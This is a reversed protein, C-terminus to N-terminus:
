YDLTYVPVIATVDDDIKEPKGGDYLYLEGSYYKTSYEYLYVIEGEPTVYYNYVDDSIKTAKDKKFTKLTGNQSEESWDAMYVLSEDEANYSIRYMYVDYDVKQKDIYLEGENDKVDKFYLFRGDENFYSYSAYVDNDYLEPKKAKGGSIAAKYLDGHGTEEDVDDVFYVLTGDDNIDFGSASNHEIVSVSDKVAIQKETSSYLAASIMDEVQSSDEIESIKIKKLEAQNYVSYLIVPSESASQYSVSGDNGAMAGTLAKSDKGNYYYLTHTTISINNESLTQRLADRSFKNQYEERAAQYEQYATEYAARAAQYEENSDYDWSYPYEPAVPEQMAEDSAKLDDEVYDILPTEKTESKVYYVDGSEYVSLVDSVDSAIKVKDKKLEKKYLIEEKVYYFVSFDEDVYDLSSIDSDIKEKDKGNEKYYLDGEGTRYIIVDGDASCYFSSVDDDIKNKETLDHQYLNREEGKIYTVLDGDENITYKYIESDIKVPEQEPKRVARYYVTVGGSTDSIKDVFFITKGDKSLYTYMGLSSAMSKLSSDGMGSVGALNETVQWPEIDSIDTYFLEGDKIYLTYNNGGGSLVVGLVIALVLVLSLAAAGIIMLKKTLKFPLKDLFSKKEEAPAPAAVPAPAAEPAPAEEPAPAAVPVPAVVPAPATQTAIPAGCNQCFAFQPNVPKSCAPCVCVPEIKTGCNDCFRTGDELLKGCKSCVIM